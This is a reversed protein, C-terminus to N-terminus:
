ADNKEQSPAIYAFSAGQTKGASAITKVARAPSRGVEIQFLGAAAANFIHEASFAASSQM